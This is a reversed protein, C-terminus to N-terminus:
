LLLLLALAVGIQITIFVALIDIIYKRRRLSAEKQNIWNQAFETVDPHVFQKRDVRELEKRVEDIGWAEYHVKLRLKQDDSLGM